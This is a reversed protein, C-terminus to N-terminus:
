MLVIRVIKADDPLAALTYDTKGAQFIGEMPIQFIMKTQQYPVVIEILKYPELPYVYASTAFAKLEKISSGVRLGSGHHYRGSEIRIRGLFQGTDFDADLAIIGDPFRLLKAYWSVTDPGDPNQVIDTFATDKMACDPLTPQIHNNWVLSDGLKLFDLGTACFQGPSLAACEQDAIKVAVTDTATALSDTSGSGAPSKPGCGLM